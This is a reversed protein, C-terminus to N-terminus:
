EYYERGLPFDGGWTGRCTGTIIKRTEKVRFVDPALEILPHGDRNPAYGSAYFIVAGEENFCVLETKYPSRIASVILILVCVFIFLGVWKNMLHEVFLSLM